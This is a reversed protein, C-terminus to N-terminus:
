FEELDNTYLCGGPDMHALQNPQGERCGNCSIPKKEDKELHESIGNTYHYRSHIPCDNLPHVLPQPEM